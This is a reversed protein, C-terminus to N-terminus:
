DFRSIVLLLSAPDDVVHAENNLGTTMECLTVNNTAIINVALCGAYDYFCSLGCEAASTVNVIKM